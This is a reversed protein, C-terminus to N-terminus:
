LIPTKFSFLHLVHHVYDSPNSAGVDIEICESDKLRRYCEPHTIRYDMVRLTGKMSPHKLITEMTASVLTVHQIMPMNLVRSYKGWMRISQDAEDIWINVKKSFLAGFEDLSELLKVLYRIRIANSCMVIMEVNGKLIQLTLADVSINNKKSGSIWSFVDGQIIADSDNENDSDDDSSCLDTHMRTETQKVLLKNNASIWINIDSNEQLQLVTEARKKIIDIAKSTKGSQAPLWLGQMKSKNHGM